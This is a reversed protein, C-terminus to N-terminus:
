LGKVSVGPGNDVKLEISQLNDSSFKASAPSGNAKIYVSGQIKELKGSKSYELKSFRLDINNKKWDAVLSDMTQRSSQPTIVYTWTRTPVPRPSKSEQSMGVTITGMVLLASAMLKKM